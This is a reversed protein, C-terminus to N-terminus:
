AARKLSDRLKGVARHVLVRAYTRSVNFRVSLEFSDREELFWMTLLERDRESLSRLGKRLQLVAETRTLAQEPDPQYGAPESKLEEASHKRASRWYEFLVNSAVSSVFAELRTPDKLESKRVTELVRRLTEQRVDDLLEPQRCRCRLKRTLARDFYTGFHNAIEPDDKSLRELYEHTFEYGSAYTSM